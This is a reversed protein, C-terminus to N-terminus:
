RDALFVVRIDGACLNPITIPRRGILRQCLCFMSRDWHWLTTEAQAILAATSSFRRFLRNAVVGQSPLAYRVEYSGEDGLAGAVCPKVCSLPPSGTVAQTKWKQSVPEYIQVSDTDLLVKDGLGDRPAAGAIFILLGEPGFPQAFHTAGLYYTGSDLGFRARISFRQVM